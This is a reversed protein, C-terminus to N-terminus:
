RPLYEHGIRRKLVAGLAFLVVSPQILWFFHLFPVFGLLFFPIDLKSAIRGIKSKQCQASTLYAMNKWGITVRELVKKGLHQVNEELPEREKPSFTKAATSLETKIHPEHAAVPSTQHTESHPKPTDSKASVDKSHSNTKILSDVSKSPTYDAKKPQELVIPRKSTEPTVAVSNIM